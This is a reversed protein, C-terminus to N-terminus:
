NKCEPVGALWQKLRKKVGPLTQSVDKSWKPDGLPAKQPNYDAKLLDNVFANMDSGVGQVDIGYQSGWWQWAVNFSNFTLGPTSDGKPTAGFSNYQTRAMPSTAWGSEHAALALLLSVDVSYKNAVPLAAPYQSNFFNWFKSQLCPPGDPPCLGLPDFHNTPNNLVYAYSSAGSQAFSLSSENVLRGKNADYLRASGQLALPDPETYRGLEPIYDRFGNHNWGTDIDYYQGPFRLNQTISGSVSAQGIPGSM